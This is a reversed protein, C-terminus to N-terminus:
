PLERLALLDGLLKDRSNKRDMRREEAPGCVPRFDCYRCAGTAPVAALFGLEIARDIIELAQVGHRRAVDFLEVGQERYGGDSTCFYLRGQMVREGLAREVALSYLVPQLVAGGGIQLNASARCKGTKHDTVRLVGVTAHREILDVSGRLLFRDAILVPDRVSSPDRGEDRLGFGFEFREPIWDDQGGVPMLEVWRRLDRRLAALEDRWVRDIAPVLREREEEGVREVTRDLVTLARALTHRRVPLLDMGKLARYFEAQIRHFLAGKTLPDLRQLPEPVEFPEIRYIAGLLFQYPCAAYRQLASLSYPRATLRQTALPERTDDTVGVIGDADSWPARWRKWRESLSRHLRDNLTILYHARGRVVGNDPAQLLPKLVALDHELEDVAASPDAPAPWALTTATLAAAERQLEDHGPVRGTVARMVDLAYFSPVRPRAERADLRPYSLYVRDTAAGIALQLRLREHQVRRDRQSLGPRVLERLRDDFLPDERLRQPFIREALGPVFVVRYTRGRVAEPSGVFVRGYPYAPPDVALSHLREAMVDRVERLAVPGIEGLPRLDALVRLVLLPQRIVRPVLDELRRLWESWPAQVPWAALEDILPLAFSRLAALRGSDRRVARVRAGDEGEERLLEELRLAYENRLGELRRHWREAGAVVQSEILLEEWKWPTRLSGELAASAPDPASDPLPDADRALRDAEEGRGSTGALVEDGGAIPADFLRLQADNRKRRGSGPEASSRPLASEAAQVAARQVESAQVRRSGDFAGTAGAGQTVPTAAEPVQGLSLYEAFRKASLQEDACALLALLARGAPHPRRTGHDFWAPVEARALAHELLGMYDRGSRVLIAMEDFRVGQGAEHLAFRAIDLAERGEGPSSFFRVSTDTRSQPPPADPSFLFRRLRDLATATDSADEAVTLGLSELRTRTLADTAPVTVTCQRATHVLEALFTHEIDSDIALDLLVCARDRVFSDENLAATAVRFLDARDSVAAEAAQTEVKELLVALDSGARPAAELAAASVRAARLDSVTRALARPFGPTGVVPDLYRLQGARVAEFGARAAIAEAGLTTGPSLGLAALRPSAIRAALQVLSFRYWGLTGPRTAAAERVFADAAARTPAVVVLEISANLSQVFARAHSVRAAASASAFVLPSKM